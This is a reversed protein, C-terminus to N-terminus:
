PCTKITDYMSCFKKKQESFIISYEAKANLTTDDSGNTGGKGFILIDKKRNDALVSSSDDDEFIIVNKGVM